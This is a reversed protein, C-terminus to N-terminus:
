SPTQRKRWHNSTNARTTGSVLSSYCLTICCTENVTSVPTKRSTWRACPFHTASVIRRTRSRKSRSPRDASIKLALSMFCQTRMVMGIGHAELSLPNAKSVIRLLSRCTDLVYQPEFVGHGAGILQQTSHKAGLVSRRLKMNCVLVRLWQQTILVDLRQTENVESMSLYGMLDEQDLIKKMAIGPDCARSTSSAEGWAKIFTNDINRFVKALALFGYVLKPEHSDFVRPLDISPRLIVQRRHQIAYARETIFLLWFLRRRRQQASPEWGAYLDADDVGLSQAFGIAERLYYWASQSQDLNGYYAFLFFSTMVTLEDAEEIFPYGQRAELCQTTFVQACSLSQPFPPSAAQTGKGEVGADFTPGPLGEINLQMVVAASLSTLLAYEAMTLPRGLTDDAYVLRLLYHCDMVPFIPYLRDIFLRVYPEFFSCPLQLTDDVCSWCPQSINLINPIDHDELLPGSCATYDPLTTTCPMERHLKSPSSCRQWDPSTAPIMLPLQGDCSELFQDMADTGSTNIPAASSAAEGTREPTTESASNDGLLPLPLPMARRKRPRPGRRKPIAIWTCGSGTKVCNGCVPRHRDCRSKKQRCQDCAQGPTEVLSGGLTSQYVAFAVM